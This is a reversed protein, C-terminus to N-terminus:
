SDGAASLRFIATAKMLTPGAGAATGSMFIISRTQRDVHSLLRIEGGQFREGTMDLSISVTRSESEGALSAAHIRLARVMLASLGEEGAEVPLHAAAEGPTQIDLDPLAFDTSATISM